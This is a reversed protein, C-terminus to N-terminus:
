ESYAPADSHDELMSAFEYVRYAKRQAVKLVDLYSELSTGRGIAKFCAIRTPVVEILVHDVRRWGDVSREYADPIREKYAELFESNDMPHGSVSAVGDIQIFGALLAVQPNKLIQKHKRTHRTTWCYIKLGDPILRMRRATVYDNASTALIGRQYIGPSGLKKFENILEHELDDYSIEIQRM